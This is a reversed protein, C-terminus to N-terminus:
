APCRMLVRSYKKHLRTEKLICLHDGERTGAKWGFPAKGNLTKLQYAKILSFSLEEDGDITTVNGGSNQLEDITPWRM